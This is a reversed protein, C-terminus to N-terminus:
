NNSQPSYPTKTLRFFYNNNKYSVKLFIQLNRKKNTMAM